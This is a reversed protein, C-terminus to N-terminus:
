AAAGGFINLNDLMTYNQKAFGQYANQISSMDTGMKNANDSMDTIALNAKEAAANTDNDLSQLLSASFSTVTEMYENASMGATKYAESAYKQVKDSADKFLTDVGGVLQEYDGYASVASKTLAAVAASGAAVAASTVKVAATLGSKIKSGLEQTRQGIDEIGQEAEGTDAGIKVFLEFLNM